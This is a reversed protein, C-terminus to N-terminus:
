LTDEANCTFNVEVDGLLAAANDTYVHTDNGDIYLYITVTQGTTGVTDSLVVATAENDAVSATFKQFRDQGAVIATIGTDSPLTINKVYLDYVENIDTGDKVRIQYTVEAVYYNFNALAVEEETAPIMTGNDTTNSYGYYWYKALAPDTDGEKIESLADMGSKHATPYVKVGTMVVAGVTDFDNGDGTVTGTDAVGGTGKIQLFMTDAKASVSMGTGQVTTNSALWAFTSATVALVAVMLALTAALMQRRLLHIKKMRREGKLANKASGVNTRCILPRPCGTGRSIGATGCCPPCRTM